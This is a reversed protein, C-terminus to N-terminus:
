RFFNLPNFSQKKQQQGMTIKTFAFGGGNIKGMLARMCMELCDIGDVKGKPYNRLQSLLTTQSKHFKIYGNKIPSILSKIRMDKDSTQKIENWPIHLGAALTRKKMENAFFEQFVNTEVEFSELKNTYRFAYSIVDDMIVDAKRRCIDATLVYFYNDIGQCVALIASTDARKNKGLSPDVAMVIHKIDPIVEYLNNNLWEEKFDRSNESIPDNQQESNFSDEDMIREVMLNYYYDEEKEPWLCIIGELMEFKHEQYYAYADDAPNERSIDTIISEWTNWHESTSFEYVAKYIKRDWMAFEKDHLVKYLLAEYHLITGIYLFITDTYGCKLLAKMFWNFLKKRQTDTEVNEDNELDDIVILDPRKNNYKIGRLKQGAGKGICHIGNATVIKSASWTKRGVLNGFDKILEENDELQNKIDTIFQAAQEATDSVILINFRYSYCICWLPLGMSIIQSKGHGRPAARCLYKKLGSYDNNLIYNQIKKFVDKHFECFESTFVDPFYSKCYLEFDTACREKLSFSFDGSKDTPIVENNINLLESLITM